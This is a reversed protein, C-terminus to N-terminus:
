LYDEPFLRQKLLGLNEAADLSYLTLERGRSTLFPWVLVQENSYELLAMIDTHWGFAMSGRYTGGVWRGDVGDVREGGGCDQRSVNYMVHEM